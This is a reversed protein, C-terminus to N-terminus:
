FMVQIEARKFDITLVTNEFFDLGLLGHVGAGSPMEHSLVNFQRKTVGLAAINDICYQYAVGSGTVTRIPIDKISDVRTMGMLRIAKESIITDQTGTDVIFQFLNIQDDAEITVAVIIAKQTMDFTEKTM